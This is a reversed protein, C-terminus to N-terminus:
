PKSQPPPVDDTALNPQAPRLAPATPQNNARRTLSPVTPVWGATMPHAPHAVATTVPCQPHKCGSWLKDVCVPCLDQHQMTM